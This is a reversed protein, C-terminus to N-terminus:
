QVNFKTLDTPFTFLKATRATSAIPSEPHPLILAVNAIGVSYEDQINPFVLSWSSGFIKRLYSVKFETHSYHRLIKGKNYVFSNKKAFKIFVLSNDKINEPKVAYTEKESVVDDDSLDSSSCEQNNIESTESESKNNKMKKKLKKPETCTSINLSRKM